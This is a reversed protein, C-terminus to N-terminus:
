MLRGAGQMGSFSPATQASWGADMGGYRLKSTDGEPTKEPVASQGPNKGMGGIAAGHASAANIRSALWSPDFGATLMNNGLNLSGGSADGMQQMPVPQGQAAMQQQQMMMQQRQLMQQGLEFYQKFQNDPPRQYQQMYAMGANYSATNTTTDSQVNGQGVDVPVFAQGTGGM